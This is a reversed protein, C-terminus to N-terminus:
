LCALCGAAALCPQLQECNRAISRSDWLALRVSCGWGLYGNATTFCAMVGECLFGAVRGLAAHMALSSRACGSVWRPAHITPGTQRFSFRLATECAEHAGETRDRQEQQSSAPAADALSLYNLTYNSRKACLETGRPTLTILTVSTRVGLWAELPTQATHMAM